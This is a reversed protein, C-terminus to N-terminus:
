KQFIQQSLIWTPKEALSHIANSMGQNGRYMNRLDDSNNEILNIIGLIQERSGNANYGKELLFDRLLNLIFYESHLLFDYRYIQNAQTEDTMKGAKRYEKRYQAKLAEIYKLLRWALFLKEPLYDDKDNFIRSYFGTQDKM